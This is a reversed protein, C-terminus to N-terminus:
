KVKAKEVVMQRATLFCLPIAAAEHFSLAKPKPLVNADAVRYHRFRAGADAGILGEGDLPVAADAGLELARALGARSRGAAVVRGAGRARALQVAAQGVLNERQKLDGETVRLTPAVSLGSVDHRVLAYLLQTVKGRLCERDCTATSTTTARQGANAGASWACGVLLLGVITRSTTNM